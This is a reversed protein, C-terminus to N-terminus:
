LINKGITKVCNPTFFSSLVPFEVTFVFGAAILETNPIRYKNLWQNLQLFVGSLVNDKVFDKM